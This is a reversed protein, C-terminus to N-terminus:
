GATIGAASLLTASQERSTWPAPEHLVDTFEEWTFSYKSFTSSCFFFIGKSAEFNKPAMDKGSGRLFWCEGGRQGELPKEALTLKDQNEATVFFESM